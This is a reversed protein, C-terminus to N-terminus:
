GSSGSGSGQYLRGGIRNPAAAAAASSAIPPRATVRVLVLPLVPGTVSVAVVTEVSGDGACGGVGAVECVIVTVPGSPRGLVVTTGGGGGGGVVVVAGVVVVVVGVVVVVVVVVVVGVVVVVVVVWGVVVWGVVVCGVVVCGGGVVVTASGVVVTSTGSLQRLRGHGSRRRFVAVSMGGAARSATAAKIAPGVPGTLTSTDPPMPVPLVETRATTRAASRVAPSATTVLGGRAPSGVSAATTM